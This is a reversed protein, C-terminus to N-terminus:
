ELAQRYVFPSLVYTNPHRANDWSPLGATNDRAITIDAFRGFEANERSGQTDPRPFHGHQPQTCQRSARPPNSPLSPAIQTVWPPSTGPVPSVLATRSDLAHRGIPLDFQHQGRHDPGIPRRTWHNSSALWDRETLKRVTTM